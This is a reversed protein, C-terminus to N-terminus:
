ASARGMVESCSIANTRSSGQRLTAQDAVAGAHTFTEVAPPRRLAAAHVMDHRATQRARERWRRKGALFANEVNIRRGHDALLGSILQRAVSLESGEPSFRGALRWPHVRLEAPYLAARRLCLDCTRIRDPAGNTQLQIYRGIECSLTVGPYCRFGTESDEM